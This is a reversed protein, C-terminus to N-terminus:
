VHSKQPVSCGDRVMEPFLQGFREFVKVVQRSSLGDCLLAQILVNCRDSYKYSGGFVIDKKFLDRVSAEDNKVDGSEQNDTSMLSCDLDTSMQSSNLDVLSGRRPTEDYDFVKVDVDQPRSLFRVLRRKINKKDQSAWDFLSHKKVMSTWIREAFKKRRKKDKELGYTKRIKQNFEGLSVGLLQAVDRESLKM